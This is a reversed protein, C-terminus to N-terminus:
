QHHNICFSPKKFRIPGIYNRTRNRFTKERNRKKSFPRSSSIEANSSVGQKVFMDTQKAGQRMRSPSDTRLRKMTVENLYGNSLLLSNGSQRRVGSFAKSRMPTESVRPKEKSRNEKHFRKEDNLIKDTKKSGSTRNVSKALSYSWWAGSCWISNDDENAEAILYYPDIDIIWSYYHGDAYQEPITKDFSLTHYYGSQLPLQGPNAVESANFIDLIQYYAGEDWDYVSISIQYDDMATDGNNTVELEFYASNSIEGSDYTVSGLYLNTLQKSLDTSWWGDDCWIRNDDEYLEDIENDGDIDIVWSYYHGDAYSAPINLSFRMTHEDGPQLPLQGAEAVESAYFVDFVQYSKGNDWDYAWIDISYDNIVTGGDNWITLEFEVPNSLEGSSYTVSYFFLNPNEVVINVPDDTIAFEGYTGQYVACVAYYYNKGPVASNDIYQNSGGAEAMGMMIWENGEDEAALWRWVEFFDANGNSGQTWSVTISTTDGSDSAYLGEVSAVVVSSVITQGVQVPESSESYGDTGSAKIKIFPKKGVYESDEGWTIYFDEPSIWGFSNWPGASTTSAFVEMATTKSDINSVGFYSRIKTDDNRQWVLIPKQMAAGKATGKDVYSKADTDSNLYESHGIDNYAVVCYYFTIGPEPFDRYYNGYTSSIEQYSRPSASAKTRFVRYYHATDVETWTIDVYPGVDDTANVNKPTEPRNETDESKIPNPIDKINMAYIVIKDYDAYKIWSYGNDAWASGWSNVFKIAGAGFKSDDYGVCLIAHGANANSADYILYNEEPSPSWNGYTIKYKDIGLMVPGRTLAQKVQQLDSLESREGSRFNRAEAHTTQSISVQAYDLKETDGGLDEYPMTDWKPIGYNKLIEWAALFSWPHEYTRCQMAFLYMPSFQNQNANWNEEVVEQHTKYYYGTAWSTCSGAQGQSKVDPMKSSYDVSSPLQDGMELTDRFGFLLDNEQGDQIEFDENGTSPHSEGGSSIGAVSRLIFIAEELGIRNNGNVDANINVTQNLNSCIKLSIIADKLEVEGSDDIDGPAAFANSLMFFLTLLSLGVIKAM